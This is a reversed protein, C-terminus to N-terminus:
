SKQEFLDITQGDKLKVVAKKWNQTKRFRSSGVIRRKKGRVIMTRVDTVKVGYTGEVENAVSGKSAAMNVKFVYEGPRVVSKETVIPKLINNNVRM